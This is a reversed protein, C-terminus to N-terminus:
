QADDEEKIPFLIAAFLSIVVTLIIIRTGESISQLLAIRSSLYSLIFSVIIIGMIVKNKKAPPIIIGLFMGYLAVSLASVLRIPLINGAVIGFATGLSWMPIAFAGAGYNYFPNLYGKQAIAIGFIEDTIIYGVGLRHYIKEKPRLKQSLSCSMLLYRANTILIMIAMEIYSAEAIMLTFGVYEGASAMNLASVIFGDIPSLGANKAIIGLSFSVAFYALGIPIGDKFGEIFKLKNENKM